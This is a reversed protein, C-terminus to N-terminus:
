NCKMLADCLFLWKVPLNPFEQEKDQMTIAMDNYDVWTGPGIEPLHFCANFWADQHCLRYMQRFNYKSGQLFNEYSHSCSHGMWAM